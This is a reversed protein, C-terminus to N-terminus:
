LGINKILANYIGPVRKIADVGSHQCQGGRRAAVCAGGLSKKANRGSERFLSSQSRTRRRINARSEDLEILPRKV